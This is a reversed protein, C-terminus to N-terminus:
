RPRRGTWEISGRSPIRIVFDNGHDAGRLLVVDDRQVIYERPLPAGDVTAGVVDGGAFDLTFAGAADTASITNTSRADRVTHLTVAAAFVLAVAVVNASARRRRRGRVLISAVQRAMHVRNSLKTCGARRVRLEALDGFIEEHWAPECVVRIVRETM